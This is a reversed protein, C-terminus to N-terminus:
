LGSQRRFSHRSCARCPRRPFDGRPGDSCPRLVRLLESGAQDGPAEPQRSDGDGVRKAFEDAGLAVAFIIVSVPGGATGFITDNANVVRDADNVLNQANQLAPAGLTPDFYVTVRGSPSTGVFQSTGTYSPWQPPAPNDRNAAVQNNGIRKIPHQM